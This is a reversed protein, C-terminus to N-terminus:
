RVIKGSDLASRGPAFKERRRLTLAVSLLFLISKGQPATSYYMAIM